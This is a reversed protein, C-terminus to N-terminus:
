PGAPQPDEAGTGTAEDDLLSGALEPALTAAAVGAVALRVLADEDLVGTALLATRERAGSAALVDQMCLADALADARLHAGGDAPRAGPGTGGGLGAGSAVHPAVWRCGTGLAALLQGPRVVGSVLVTRGEAVLATAAALGPRTAPLAVTVVPHVTTLRRADRLLTEPERGRAEVVVEPAGAAVLDAVLLPVDDRLVGVRALSGPTTTVGAFAGTRLLPAVDGVMASDLYLRM